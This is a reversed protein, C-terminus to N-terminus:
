GISQEAALIQFIDNTQLLKQPTGQGVIRGSEFVLIQECIELTSFRHAIVLITTGNPLNRLAQMVEDETKSDLASTAEDFVILDAKRYLARAIALRQRQGGSLRTGREGIFTDYGNPMETTVFEDICAQQACEKVRAMDIDEPSLGLAINQAVSADALHIDQPVFAVSRRWSVLDTDDIPQGDIRIAGKSPALLGLVIDGFTTKGAGSRGVIGIRSGAQISLNIRKLGPQHAGPYSYSVDDLIMSGELRVREDSDPTLETALDFLDGSLRDLAAVGFQLRMVNDLLKQIEPVIRAAAVALAGFVPGIEGFASGTQYAEPDVLVLTFFVGLVLIIARLAFSPVNALIQVAIVTTRYTYSSAEFRDIYHDQLQLIKVDKISQVGEAAEKFRSQNAQSRIQGLRRLRKRLLFFVSAYVLGITGGLLFTMGPDILALVAIVAAITPIATVSQLAPRYFESVVSDTESLVNASLSSTHRNLHFEYPLNLYTALLRKGLNHTLEGSFSAVTKVQLLQALFVAIAFLATFAGVWILLSYPELQGLVRQLWNLVFMSDAAAPDLLLTTFPYVSWVMLSSFVASVLSALASYGARKRDAPSLLETARKLLSTKTLSTKNGATNSM